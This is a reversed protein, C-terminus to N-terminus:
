RTTGTTGGARTFGGGATGVGGAGGVGGVGGVQPLTGGQALSQEALAIMRKVMHGGVAGCQRAPVDGWYGDRVQQGIGVENAIDYKFRDLATEAGRVLAKNSTQSGQAM